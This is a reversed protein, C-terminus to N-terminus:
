NILRDTKKIDIKLLLLIIFVLPVFLYGLLNEVSVYKLGIGACVEGIAMAVLTLTSNFSLLGARLNDPLFKNIFSQNLPIWGNIALEIMVFVAVAFIVSSAMSFSFFLLIQLCALVIFTVKYGRLRNIMEVIYAGIIGTIATVAGLLGFYYDPLKITERFYVPYTLSYVAILFGFIIGIIFISLVSKQKRIFKLNDIVLNRWNTAKQILYREKPEDIFIWYIGIVILNFIAAFIWILNIEYKVIAVTFLSGVLFGINSFIFIRSFIRDRKKDQDSLTLGDIMLSDKAGSQFTYAIGWLISLLLMLPFNKNLSWLIYIATLLLYSVIVSKKRGYKDAFLGTPFEFLMSSIREAALIIGIQWASFGISLLYIVFLPGIIGNALSSFVSAGYFAVINNNKIFGSM